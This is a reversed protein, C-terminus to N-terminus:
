MAPPSTVRLSARLLWKYHRKQASSVSPFPPPHNLWCPGFWSERYINIRTHINNTYIYKYSNRMNSLSSRRTVNRLNLILTEPNLKTDMLKHFTEDSINQPLLPHISTMVILSLESFTFNGHILWVRGSCKHTVEAKDRHTCFRNATLRVIFCHISTLEQLFISGRSKVVHM